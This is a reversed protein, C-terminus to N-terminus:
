LKKGKERYVTQSQKSEEIIKAMNSNAGKKPKQSLFEEKTNLGAKTGDAM